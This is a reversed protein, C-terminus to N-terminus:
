KQADRAAIAKPLVKLAQTCNISMLNAYELPSYNGKEFEMGLGGSLKALLVLVQTVPDLKQFLRDRHKELEKIISEKVAEEERHNPNEDTKLESLMKLLDEM